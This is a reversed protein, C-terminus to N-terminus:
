MNVCHDSAPMGEILAPERAIQQLTETDNSLAWLCRLAAQLEAPTAEAASPELVRHLLPVVGLRLLTPVVSEDSSVINELTRCVLAVRRATWLPGERPLENHVDRRLYEVLVALASEDILATAEKETALSSLFM